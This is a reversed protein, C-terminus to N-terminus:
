SSSSPRHPFLPFASLFVFVIRNPALLGAWPQFRPYSEIDHMVPPMAGKRLMSPDVLQRGHREVQDTGAGMHPMPFVGHKVVVIDVYRSIIGIDIQAYKGPKRRVLLPQPKMAPLVQVYPRQVGEEHRLEMQEAIKVMHHEAPDVRTGRGPRLAPIKDSEDSSFYRKEGQCEHNGQAAVGNRNDEKVVRYNDKNHTYGKGDYELQRVARAAGIEGQGVFGGMRHLVWPSDVLGLHREVVVSVAPYPRPKEPAQVVMELM